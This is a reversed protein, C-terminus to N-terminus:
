ERGVSSVTVSGVSLVGKRMTLLKFFDYPKSKGLKEIESGRRDFCHIVRDSECLLRGKDRGYKCYQKLVRLLPM